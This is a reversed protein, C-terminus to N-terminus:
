WVKWLASERWITDLELTEEFMGMSCWSDIHRHMILQGDAALRPLTERQLHVDDGDALYDLVASFSSRSPLLKLTPLEM